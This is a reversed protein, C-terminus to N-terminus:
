NKIRGCRVWAGAAQLLVAAGILCAASIERFVPFKDLTNVYTWM